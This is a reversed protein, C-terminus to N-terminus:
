LEILNNRNVDMSSGMCSTPPPRNKFYERQKRMIKAKENTNRFGFLYKQQLLYLHIKM